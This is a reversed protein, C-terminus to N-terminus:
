FKKKNIKMKLIIIKVMWKLKLYFEKMNCIM